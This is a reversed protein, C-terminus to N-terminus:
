VECLDRAGNLQWRLADAAEGIRARESPSFERWDKFALADLDQDQAGDVGALMLLVVKTETHLRSWAGPARDVTRRAYEARLAQLKHRELSVRNNIAAGTM